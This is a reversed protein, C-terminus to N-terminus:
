FEIDDFDDEYEPEEGFDDEVKGDKILFDRNQLYADRIFSYRDGKVLKEAELLQARNDVIRLTRAGLGAESDEIYTVPDTYWSVSSGVTDRVTSPGLFPLILYPGAGVGWAALTQGFDEGPTKPLGCRDAVDILGVIGLTSNVLLRGTSNAATKWKWQLISNVITTVEGLNDFVNSVGHEVPDPTIAKYGRAAPKLIARDLVDNFAYVKRNFGEWPDRNNRAPSTQDNTAEGAPGQASQEPVSSCATVILTVALLLVIRM